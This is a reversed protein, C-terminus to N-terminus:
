NGSCFQNGNQERAGIKEDMKSRSFVSPPRRYGARANLASRSPDNGVHAAGKATSSGLNKGSAIVVHLLLRPPPLVVKLTILQHGRQGTKRNRIGRQCSAETRRASLSTYSGCDSMSKTKPAAPRRAPPVFAKCKGSDLLGNALATLRCLPTTEAGLELNPSQAIRLSRKAGHATRGYGGAQATERTIQIGRM